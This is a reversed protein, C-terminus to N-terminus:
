EGFYGVISCAFCDRRYGGHCFLYCYCSLFFLLRVACFSSLICLFVCGAERKRGPVHLTAATAVSGKIMVGGWERSSWCRGQLVKEAPGIAELGSGKKKREWEKKKEMKSTM